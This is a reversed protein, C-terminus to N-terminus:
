LDNIKEVFGQATPRSMIHRRQQMLLKMERSYLPDFKRVFSESPIHRWVAALIFENLKGVAAGLLRYGKLSFIGFREGNSHQLWRIYGTDLRITSTLNKGTYLVIHVWGQSIKQLMGELVPVKKHSACM